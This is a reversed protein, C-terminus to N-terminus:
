TSADAETPCRVHLEKPFQLGITAKPCLPKLGHRGALQFIAEDLAIVVGFLESEFVGKRTVVQDESDPYILIGLSSILECTSPGLRHSTEKIFHPELAYDPHQLPDAFVADWSGKLPQACYEDLTHRTLAIYLATSDEVQELALSSLVTVVINFHNAKPMSFQRIMKRSLNPKDPTGLTQANTASHQHLFQRILTTKGAGAVAHIVLPKSIPLDTRTYGNAILLATLTEM